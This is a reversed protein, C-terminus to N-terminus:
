LGFCLMRNGCVLDIVVEASMGGLKMGYAFPKMGTIDDACLELM